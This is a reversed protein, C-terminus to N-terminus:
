ADADSKPDFSQTHEHPGNRFQRFSKVFTTTFHGLLHILIIWIAFIPMALIPGFKRGVDNARRQMALEAQETYESGTIEGDGDLDHRMINAHIDSELMDSTVAIVGM